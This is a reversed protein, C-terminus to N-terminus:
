TRGADASGTDGVDAPDVPLVDDVSVGLGELHQLLAAAEPVQLHVRAIDDPVQPANVGAPSPIALALGDLEVVL